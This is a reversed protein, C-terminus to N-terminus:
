HGSWSERATGVSSRDSSDDDEEWSIRGSAMRYWCTERMRRRGRPLADEECLQQRLQPLACEICLAQIFTRHAFPTCLVELAWREGGRYLSNGSSSKYVPYNTYSLRFLPLDTILGDTLIPTRTSFSMSMNDFMPIGRLGDGIALSGLAYCYGRPNPNKGTVRMQPRFSELPHSTPENMTAM